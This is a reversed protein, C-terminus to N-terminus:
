GEGDVVNKPRGRRMKEKIIKEQVRILNEM